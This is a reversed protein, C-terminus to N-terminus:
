FVDAATLTVTLLPVVVAGVSANLPTGALMRRPCVKVAVAVAVFLPVMAALPNETRTLKVGELEM